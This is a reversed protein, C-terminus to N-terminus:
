ALEVVQVRGQRRQDELLAAFGAGYSELEESTVVLVPSPQRIPDRKPSKPGGPVQDDTDAKDGLIVYDRPEPLETPLHLVDRTMNTIQVRGRRARKPEATPTTDAM